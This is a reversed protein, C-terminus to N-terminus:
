VLELRLERGVAHAAKLMTDLQVRDNDPDLFRDLHARSTGMRRAMESKTVEGEDMAQRLQWALVAKIAHAQTEEFAGQERLWEELSSGVHPNNAERSM